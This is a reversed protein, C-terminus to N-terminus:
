GAMELEVSERAPPLSVGRLEADIALLEDVRHACTHRELITRRGREALHRALDPDGLVDRLRRRMAEGNEAVLFDEGPTFLGEADDWPASVLPIGCALAEFPRITPIGPLSEVYPRRPVHITVRFRAFARPVQHNALWGAYEIGAKSLATRADEPYRVGHVRTRLGRAPGILFEHLEATREEDGWNGIWILDGERQEGQIPHFVRVDAAEHWTWTREAWGRELYLDRIVGGFALVGDYGSLDYSAMQEPASVARHHTDHFLLRHNGSKEGIRRVLGHDNWEHVLVLDAGDLAEDLDLTALDYRTSSLTPYAAHFGDLASEGHDALLNRLSWSDRPEFIRVEHGRAQLEAAVGRLFHANGHNWDSLLSHVFLVVRM